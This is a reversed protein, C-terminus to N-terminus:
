LPKAPLKTTSLISFVNIRERPADFIDFTILIFFWNLIALPTNSQLYLELRVHSTHMSPKDFGAVETVGGHRRAAPSIAATRYPSCLLAM